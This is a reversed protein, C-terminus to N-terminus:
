QVEVEISSMQLDYSGAGNFLSILVYRCGGVNVNRAKLAWQGIGEQYNLEGIFGGAANFFRLHVNTTGAFSARRWYVVRTIHCALGLDVLCSVSRSTGGPNLGSILSGNSPGGVVSPPNFTTWAAASNAAFVSASVGSQATLFTKPGLGTSMSDGYDVCVIPADDDDTISVTHTIQAGLEAKENFPAVLQLTFDVSEADDDIADDHITMTITQTAGDVSGAPFVVIEGSLEYDNPNNADGGTKNIGAWIDVDTSNEEPPLNLVVVIDHTGASEAVTAGASQFSIVANQVQPCDCFICDAEPEFSGIYGVRKWYSTNVANIILAWNYMGHFPNFNYKAVLWDRFPIMLSESWKGNERIMCYLQCRAADLETVTIDARIVSTGAEFATEIFDVVGNAVQGIIPIGSPLANLGTAIAAVVELHADIIELYDNLAATMTNVIAVTSGCWSEEDNIPADPTEFVVCDCNEGASGQPGTEGQPGTPGTAGQEGQLGQPGQPGTAGTQGQLGQLGQPGTEGQPGQPGAPGTAGIPGCVNGLITWESVTDARWELNCDNIRIEIMACDECNGTALAGMFALVGQVAGFIVEDSGLWVDAWLLRDLVGDIFPIWERNVKICLTPEDFVGAQPPPLKTFRTEYPRIKLREEDFPNSM